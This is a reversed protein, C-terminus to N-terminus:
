CICGSKKASVSESSKVPLVSKSVGTVLKAVGARRETALPSVLYGNSIQSSALALVATYDLDLPHLSSAPILHLVCPNVVQNLPSLQPVSKAFWQSIGREM